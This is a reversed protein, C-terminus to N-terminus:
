LVSGAQRIADAHEQWITRGSCACVVKQNEWVGASRAIVGAVKDGVTISRGIIDQVKIQESETVLEGWGKPGINIEGIAHLVKGTSAVGESLNGSQRVAVQYIGPEFATVSTEIFCTQLNVQVLRVLGRIDQRGHEQACMDLICVAAGEASGTGRLIVDKGTDRMARSIQSPPATGEVFVSKDNLNIDFREVGPVKKLAESISDACAQCKMTVAYETQFSNTM